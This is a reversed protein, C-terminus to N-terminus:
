MEIQCLPTICNKKTAPAVMLNVTHNFFLQSVKSPSFAVAELRQWSIIEWVPFKLHWGSFNSSLELSHFEKVSNSCVAFNGAGRVTANCPTHMNQNTKPLM